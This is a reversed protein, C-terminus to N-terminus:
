QQYVWWAIALGIPLGLVFGASIGATLITLEM